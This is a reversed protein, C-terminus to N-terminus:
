IDKGNDDEDDDLEEDSFHIGNKTESFDGMTDDQTGRNSREAELMKLRELVKKKQFPEGLNTISLDFAHKSIHLPQEGGFGISSAHVNLEPISDTSDEVVPDSNSQPTRGEEPTSQRSIKEYAQAIATEDKGRWHKVSKRQNEPKSCTLFDTSGECTSCPRIGEGDDDDDDDEPLLENSPDSFRIVNKREPIQEKSNERTKEADLLKLRDLVQQRKFDPGLNPISLNLSMTSQHLGVGEQLVLDEMEEDDEEEVVIVGPKANTTKAATEKKTASKVVEEDPAPDPPYQPPVWGFNRGTVRIFTEPPIHKKSVYHCVNGAALRGPKLLRGKKPGGCRVGPLPNEWSATPDPRTPPPPPAPAFERRINAGGEGEAAPKEDIYPYVIPQGSSYWNYQKIYTGDKRQAGGCVGTGTRALRPQYSFGFGSPM